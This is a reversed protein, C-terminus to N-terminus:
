EKGLKRAASAWAAKASKGFVVGHDGFSVAWYEGQAISSSRWAHADPWKALVRKKATRPATM